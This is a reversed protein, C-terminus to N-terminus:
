SENERIANREDEKRNLKAKGGRKPPIVQPSQRRELMARAMPNRRIIKKRKM